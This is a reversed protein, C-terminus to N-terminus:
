AAAPVTNAMVNVVSKTIWNFPHAQENGEAMFPERKGQLGATSAFDM